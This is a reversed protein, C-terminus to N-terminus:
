KLVRKSVNFYTLKISIPFVYAYHNHFSGDGVLISWKKLFFQTLAVLKEPNRNLGKFPKIKGVILDTNRRSVVIIAKKYLVKSVYSYSKKPEQNM